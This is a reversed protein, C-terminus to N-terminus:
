VCTGSVQTVTIKGNERRISIAPYGSQTTWPGFFNHVPHITTVNDVLRQIELANFLDEPVSNNWSSNYLSLIIKIIPNHM